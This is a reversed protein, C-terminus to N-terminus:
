RQEASGGMLESLEFAVMHETCGPSMTFSFQGSGSAAAMTHVLSPVDSIGSLRVSMSRSCSCMLWAAGVSEPRYAHWVVPALAVSATQKMTLTVPSVGRSFSFEFRGGVVGIRSINNLFPPMIKTPKLQAHANIKQGTWVEM